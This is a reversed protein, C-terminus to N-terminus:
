QLGNGASSVGQHDPVYDKEMKLAQAYSLYAEPAGTELFLKWYDNANMEMGELGIMQLHLSNLAPFKNRIASIAFWSTATM